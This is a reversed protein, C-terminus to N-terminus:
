FHSYDLNFVRVWTGQRRVSFEAVSHAEGEGFGVSQLYKIMADHSSSYIFWAVISIGLAWFPGRAWRKDFKSAKSLWARFTSPGAAAVPTLYRRDLIHVGHAFLFIMAFSLIHVFKAPNRVYSSGPLAYVFQYFPAFRGFTASPGRHQSSFATANRTTSCHTSPAM